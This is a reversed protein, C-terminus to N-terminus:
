ESHQKNKKVEENVARLGIFINYFLQNYNTPTADAENCKYLPTFHIGLISVILLVIYFYLFM